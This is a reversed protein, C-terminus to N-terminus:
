SSAPLQSQTIFVSATLLEIFFFGQGPCVAILYDNDINFRYHLHQLFESPYM